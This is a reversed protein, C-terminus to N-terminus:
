RSRYRIVDVKCSLGLVNAVREVFDVSLERDCDRYWRWVTSRNVGASEAISAISVGKEIELVLQEYVHRKLEM